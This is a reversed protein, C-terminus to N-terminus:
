GKNIKNAFDTIISVTEPVCMIEFHNYPLEAYCVDSRTKQNKITIVGDNDPMMWPVRGKTSVVQIWPITLRIREAQKIPAGNTGIDQLLKSRPNMFKMWDALSSGAFPTSISIGGVCSIKKSLHLAYIGGLSHGVIISDRIGVLQHEITTLNEYFGVTSSYDIKTYM